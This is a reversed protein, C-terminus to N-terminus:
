VKVSSAVLLTKAVVIAAFAANPLESVCFKQIPVVQVVSAPVIFVVAIEM